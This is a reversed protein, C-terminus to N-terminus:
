ILLLWIGIAPAILATAPILLWLIYWCVVAASLAVLVCLGFILLTMRVCMGVVRSMTNVIVAVMFDEFGARHREETMRKWPAWLTRALLPMSFFHTVFWMANLWLAFIDRLAAGYHWAFHDVLFFSRDM